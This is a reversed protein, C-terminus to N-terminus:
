KRGRAALLLACEACTVRRRMLTLRDSTASEGCLTTTPTSFVNSRVAWHIRLKNRHRPM